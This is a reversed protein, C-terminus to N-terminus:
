KLTFRYRYLPSAELDCLSIHKDVQEPVPEVGGGLREAIRIAEAGCSMSPQKKWSGFLLISFLNRLTQLFATRCDEKTFVINKLHRIAGQRDYNEWRNQPNVEYIEIRGPYKKVLQELPVATVGRYKRVDIYFLQDGWRCAKAAHICVGKRNRVLILDGEWIEQRVEAFPTYIPIMHVTM